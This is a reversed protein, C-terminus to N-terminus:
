WTTTRVGLSYYASSTAMSARIEWRDNGLDTKTLTLDGHTSTGFAAETLNLASWNDLDVGYLLSLATDNTVNVEVVWEASPLTHEFVPLGGEQGSALYRLPEQPTLGLAQRLLYSLGGPFPEDSLESDTPLSHEDLYQSATRGLTYTAGTLPSPPRDTAFARALLTTTETFTLPGTYLTSNSTPDSGNTTYRITTDEGTTTLTVELTGTFLQSAPTIEVPSLGDALAPAVQPYTTGMRFEDLWGNNSSSGPNWTLEAFALSETTSLTAHPPGPDAAGPQPDIWLSANSTEGFQVYLVHFTPRTQVAIGTDATLTEGRLSLEWHGNRQRVRVTGNNDHFIAGGEDFAVKSNVTTGNPFLIWSAWLHTGPQGILDTGSLRQHAFTTATDFSRGSTQYGHGGTAANGSQVLRGYSTDVSGDIAYGVASQGGEVQWTSDFGFSGNGSREDLVEGDVYNFPEYALPEEPAEGLAEGGTGSLETAVLLLNGFQIPAPDEADAGAWAKFDDRAGGDDDDDLAIDFGMPLFPGPTLNLNIWPIAVEFTYGGPQPLIASLIGADRGGTEWTTGDLALRLHRHQSNFVAEKDNPGDLYLNVADDNELKNGSDRMLRRDSVSGALYLFNNDWALDFTLANGEAGQPGGAILNTGTWFTESLEGDLRVPSLLRPVQLTSNLIPGIVLSLEASTTDPIEDQDAAQITLPFTGEELPVGVFNGNGSLLIGEPLEGSIISWLLNGNGGTSSLGFAYPTGVNGGPLTQTVITPQTDVDVRLTYQRSVSLPTESSDTVTVNFTFDGTETPTGSLRGQTSLTLGAPLDDENTTWTRPTVGGVAILDTLFAGNLYAPPLAVTSILMQSPSPVGSLPQTQVTEWATEQLITVLDPDITGYESPVPLGVPSDQYMVAYFVVATLYAGVDGMHVGDAYIQFINDYGPVLGAKMKQNLAFMTHGVPVLFVREEGYIARVAETLDAAFDATEQSNFGGEPYERLWLEDYTRPAPDFDPRDQRPWRGHILIKMNDANPTRQFALGVFNQIHTVDSELSRDFPQLSLFDWDYNPLAFTPYGFPNQTFGSNPNEWLFQLPAGPIMQRGWPQTHGRSEALAQYGSYRITDTVSNGIFYVSDASLTPATLLLCPLLWARSLQNLLQM